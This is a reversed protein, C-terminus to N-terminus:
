RLLFARSEVDFWYSPSKTSSDTVTNIQILTPSVWGTVHNLFNGAKNEALLSGVDLYPQNNLFPLGTVKFVLINLSNGENKQLYLYKNDPSFSNQPLSMEGKPSVTKMFLLRQNKGPIDAIFFSYSKVQDKKEAKMILKMTGDPSHIESEQTPAPTKLSSPVPQSQQVAKQQYRLVVFIGVLFILLILSKVLPSKFRM